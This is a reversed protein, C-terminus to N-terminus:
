GQHTHTRTNVPFTNKKIATNRTFSLKQPNELIERERKRM